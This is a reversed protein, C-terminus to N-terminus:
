NKLTYSLTSTILEQIGCQDADDPILAYLDNRQELDPLCGNTYEYFKKIFNYAIKQHDSLLIAKLGYVDDFKNGRIEGAPDVKGVLDYYGARNYMFTNKHPKKVRYQKRWKGTADFSELAFGYPDISKHCAYCAPNKKHEEIQERLSAAEEGHEPEVVEIDEPPPSLTNGVINKSIWAGRLIPSTDFGDATVKLISGMTMLGGRPVDPRFSVLRMEQGHVGDIGYHQALRQNLFSFNSDILNSVSLNQYILHGLYAETEQPLYHNLLDNYKPYLKLSPTVENFSRLELWQQCISHIMRESRADDLMHSVLEAMEMHMLQDKRSLNLLYDDPVSLWFIRALSSALEYSKNTHEGPSMLFRHSCLIAKLGHKSAEIFDEGDTLASLSAQYCPALEEDTLSSSFAREAFNKLIQKLVESSSVDVAVQDRKVETQNPSLVDLKGVSALSRGDLSHAGTILFKIYPAPTSKPFHIIQQNAVRIELDGKMVPGDWSKADQSYYIEYAEVQGNGNGGSWTSYVLGEIDYRNPNTLIVYHPLKALTPEYQTHWFTLNSGDLMKDKERGKQESSVLVDGGIEILRSQNVIKNRPIRPPVDLEVGEFVKQYSLPPWSNTVPGRIKLQKIYAGQDGGVQRFNHKSYCHVSVNEGPKLFARIKHSAVERNELSIVGVLRQPEPRDDAFYYKGAFVQVSIAEDFAGLKKADFTLDYWGEVPPEFNDYFFSYSNGNNARTWSFLVGDEYRRNYINYTKHSDRVKNTTWIQQPYFGDKPFAFELMREAVNFYSSLLQPTIKIRRDTDFDYTGRDEAIEDSLDLEIGLLDNVSHVFEHRSTRRYSEPPIPKQKKSLWDLMQKKETIGPQSKNSPPMKGTILNEFMLTGDFTREDLLSIMDLNGKKVEDDHCDFCYNEFLEYPQKISHTDAKASVLGIIVVIWLILFTGTSHKNCFIM